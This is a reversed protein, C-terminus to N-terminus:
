GDLNVVEAIRENERPSYDDENLLERAQEEDEATIDISRARLAPMQEGERLLGGEDGDESVIQFRFRPM